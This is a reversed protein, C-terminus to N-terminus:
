SLNPALWREVDAKDAGRRRAMDDLQDAGIKGVV